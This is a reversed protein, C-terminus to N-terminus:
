DEEKREEQITDLAQANTETVCVSEEHVCLTLPPSPSPPPTATMSVCVHPGTCLFPSPVKEQLIQISSKIHVPPIM